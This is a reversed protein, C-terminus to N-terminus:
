FVFTLGMFVGEKMASPSNVQGVRRIYEISLTHFINEVGIGVEAFPKNGTSNTLTNLRNFEKNAPSLDGMFANFSVRERWGMKQLLPVRDFLLGGISLRSRLSVFRDSVFEFPSMTSFAYKSSVFAESGRPIDLLLSPLTGFTKGFQLNYYFLSKPPLNVIQSIGLGIKDYTFPASLAKFGHTYSVNLTPFVSPRNLQIRRFNTYVVQEGFSYQFDTKFEAVSIKHNGIADPTGPTSLSKSYQYEFSPDFEKYSVSSKNLWNKALHQEHYFKIEKVFNRKYLTKNKQLLSNILNDKQPEDDITMLVDYDNKVYIGTKSWPEASRLFGADISGKLRKDKTGYALYGGAYWNESIGTNSYIGLRIRAGELPNTSLISALHGVRWKDKINVYGTCFAAIGQATLRYRRTKKLSNTMQYIAREHTSLSDLRHAAWFEESQELHAMNKPAEEESIINEITNEGISIKDYVNTNTYTVFAADPAAEIPIGILELGGDFTVEVSVKKPMYVQEDGEGTPHIGFAENYKIAKVFNLNATEDMKMEIRNVSLTSDNIWMMGTFTADFKRIPVFQVKLQLKNDIMLSDEIYYHYNDWGHDAVPSAFTKEFIKLWNDYINFGINFRELHRLLQDTELELTKKAIIKEEDGVNESHYNESLTETFYIPLQDGNIAATDFQTFTTMMLDQLGNKKFNEPKINNIALEARNYKLYNYNSLKAPNNFPKRAVVKKMLTKGPNADARVVAEVLELSANKLEFYLNQLNNQNLRVIQTEYGIQSIELSDSSASTELVFSGDQETNTGATTGVLFINAFDIPAKTAADVVKGAIKFKTTTEEQANAIGTQLFLLIFLFISFRGFDFSLSIFFRNQLM